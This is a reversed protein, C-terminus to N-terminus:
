FTFVVKPQIELLEELDPNAETFLWNITWDDIWDLYYVVIISKDQSFDLKFVGDKTLCRNRILEFDDDTFLGQSKTVESTYVFNDNVRNQYQANEIKADWSQAQSSFTFLLFIAIFLNKM